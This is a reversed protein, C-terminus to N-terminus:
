RRRKILLLVVAIAVLVVTVAIGIALTTQNSVPRTEATSTGPTTATPGVYEM